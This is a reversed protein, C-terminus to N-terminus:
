KKKSFKLPVFHTIEGDAFVIRNNLSTIKVKYISIGRKFSIKKAESKIRIPSLERKLTNKFDINVSKLFGKASYYKQIDRYIILMATQCMIEVLLAGPFIPDNLLHSSFTWHSSKIKYQGIACNKKELIEASDLFLFPAGIDLIKSIKKKNLNSM